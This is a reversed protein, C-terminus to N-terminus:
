FINDNITITIIMKTNLDYWILRFKVTMLNFFMDTYKLFFQIINAVIFICFYSTMLNSFIRYFM